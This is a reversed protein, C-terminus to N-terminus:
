RIVIKSCGKKFMFNTDNKLRLCYVVSDGNVLVLRVIQHYINMLLVLIIEFCFVNTHKSQSILSPHPDLVCKRPIELNVYLLSSVVTLICPLTLSPPPAM